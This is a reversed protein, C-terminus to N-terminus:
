PRFKASTFRDAEIESITPKSMPRVVLELGCSRLVRMLNHASVGEMAGSEIRWILTRGVAAAAGLEQQSKGSAKRAKEVMEGLRRMHRAEVEILPDPPQAVLKGIQKM